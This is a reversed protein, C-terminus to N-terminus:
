LQARLAVIQAVNDALWGNDQGLMAEAMRRPTRLRELEVIQDIIPRRAEKLQIAAVAEADQEVNDASVNVRYTEITFDTPRVCFFAGLYGEDRQIDRVAMATAVDDAEAYAEIFRSVAYWQAIILFSM